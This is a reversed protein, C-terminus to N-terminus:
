IPMPIVYQFIFSFSNARADQSFLRSILGSFLSDRPQSMKDEWPEYIKGAGDEMKKKVCLRLTAFIKNSVFFTITQLISNLRNVKKLECGVNNMRNSLM